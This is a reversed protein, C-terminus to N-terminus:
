EIFRTCADHQEKKARKDFFGLPKGCLICLSKSRREDRIARLRKEEAGWPGAEDAERQLDKENMDSMASEKQAPWVM